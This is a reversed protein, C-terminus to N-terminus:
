TLDVFFNNKKILILNQIILASLYIQSPILLFLQVDFGMFYVIFLIVTIFLMMLESKQKLVKLVIFHLIGYIILLSLTSFIYTTIPVNTNSPINLTHTIFFLFIYIAWLIYREYIYQPNNIISGIAFYLIALISLGALIYLLLIFLIGLTFNDRQNFISFVLLSIIFTIVFVILSIIIIWIPRDSNILSRTFIIILLGINVVIITLSLFTRETIVDNIYLAFMMLGMIYLTLKKM